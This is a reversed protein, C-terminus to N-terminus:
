DKEALHKLLKTRAQHMHWRAGQETTGVLAAIERFSLDEQARLHFVMRTMESLQGLAAKLLASAEATELAQGPRSEGAPEHALPVFAVRKRRRAVDCAANAAIRLLWVRRATGAEFTDRRHWARLFTEQTLDEADHANGTTGYLFRYVADWHELVVAQFSDAAPGPIVLSPAHDDAAL